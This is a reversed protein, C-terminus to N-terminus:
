PSHVNGQHSFKCLNADTINHALVFAKGLVTDFLSIRYWAKVRWELCVDLNLSVELCQKRSSHPYFILDHGFYSPSYSNM